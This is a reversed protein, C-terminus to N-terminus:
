TVGHHRKAVRAGLPGVFVGPNRRAVELLQKLKHTPTAGARNEKALDAHGGTPGVAALLMVTVAVDVV